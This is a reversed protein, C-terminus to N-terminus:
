NQWDPFDSNELSKPIIEIYLGHHLDDTFVTKIQMSFNTANDSSGLAYTLLDITQKYDYNDVDRPVSKLSLPYIHFFKAEWNPWRPFNPHESFLIASLMRNASCVRGYSRASLHPLHVVVKNDLFQIGYEEHIRITKHSKCIYQWIASPDIGGHQAYTYLTNEAQTLAESLEQVFRMSIVSRHEQPYQPAAYLIEDSCLNACNLFSKQLLDLTDLIQQSAGANDTTTNNTTDYDSPLEFALLNEKM